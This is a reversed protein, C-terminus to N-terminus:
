HLLKCAHEWAVPHVQHHRGSRGFLIPEPIIGLINPQMYWAEDLFVPWLFRNNGIRSMCEILADDDDPLLLVNVINAVSNCLSCMLMM